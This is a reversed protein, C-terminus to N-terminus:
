LLQLIFFYLLQSFYQSYHNLIVVVRPEAAATHLVAPLISQPNNASLTEKLTFSSCNYGYLHLSGDDCEARCHSTEHSRKVNSM